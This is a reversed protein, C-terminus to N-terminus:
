QDQHIAVLEEPTLTMIWGIALQDEKSLQQRLAAWLKRQRDLQELGEFGKWAVIVSARDASSPKELEDIQADPFKGLLVQRIRDVVQAM